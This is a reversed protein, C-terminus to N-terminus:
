FRYFYSMYELVVRMIIIIVASLIGGYFDNGCDNDWDDSILVIMLYAM